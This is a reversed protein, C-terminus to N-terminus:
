CWYSGYSGNFYKPHGVISTPKRVTPVSKRIFEGMRIMLVNVIVRHTKSLDKKETPDDILNFLWVKGRKPTVFPDGEFILKFIGVRMASQGKAINYIFSFREVKNKAKNDIISFWQNIGDGYSRINAGAMGIITAHWDVVHFLENRISFEKFYRPSHIFTNTKTGGEWLSDKEGRLPGNRAGWQVSGGNDSTFIIITDDYLNRYKLYKVLNGIAEDMSSLMACYTMRNWDNKLKLCHRLHKAPAQLPPHVSQFSLFLFFPSSKNHKNLINISEDLFLDTSYIGNKTYDPSGIGRGRERFLDLGKVVGFPPRKHYDVSHNYYGEQPGYFGYFYDFGRYTPLYERKCYGLHWKGILYNKYGLENLNEPLFRFKTSVGAPEMHLFVGNGTGVKFPYHGTMFASRTPTCLQNVYSNSFLLSNKSHALFRLNPTHLNYDKWDVDSFGLDDAMIFLINPKKPTIELSLKINFIYIFFIFKWDM